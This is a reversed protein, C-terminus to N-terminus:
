KMEDKYRGANTIDLRQLIESARAKDQQPAKSFIKILETAKGQFFFQSIMKNPNDTNFNSMLNLVNLVEVRAANEDEYLKDMGMRYYNYYVDHMITYRSNLMNEVLWYRNRVGDFAKWGSIGRGDPANNVINQAKQFYPDGGRLSFSAYDFGIVMYAYYAIIATLNSILADNGTVRNENFDLQQFEIYKFIVNDDKFNIIPSIYSSNFVPRAAQITISANYVNLDGTSQLNLLFNCEIRENQTFNDSTWKRTNIFTNLASQLTRFVNQNVNNAVQNSIVTINAKLEQAAAMNTIFALLLILNIKRM